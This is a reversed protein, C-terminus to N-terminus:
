FVCELIHHKVLWGAVRAARQPSVRASWLTVLTGIDVNAPVLSLLCGLEIGDVFAVPRGLAPHLLATRECVENDIICPEKSLQAAGSLRVRTTASINQDPLSARLPLRANQIGTLPRSRERWFPSVGFRVVKRYSDVSWAHHREITERQRARYFAMSLEKREPRTIMTHVTAAAVYGTQMAKEVGTSSLPDLTFSSEGVRVFNPGISDVTFGTTANLAFVPQAVPLKSVDEFLTAEALQSRWFEELGEPRRQRFTCSDIFVMASFLKGPVSAGWCWGDPIAEIRTAQPPRSDQLYGCLALTPPLTSVRAGPLFSQRGAADILYSARINRIQRDSRIDLQWGSECSTARCAQTPQIVEVGAVDASKLLLSDFEGRNVTLAASNDAEPLREAETKDWRVLTEPAHVLDLKSWLERLGLMEFLIPTGKTLSEGVHPRPFRAREILIVRHGLQALRLATTSGAPGAGVVCADVQDDKLLGFGGPVVGCESTTPLIIRSRKCLKVCNANLACQETNSVSHDFHTTVRASPHLNHKKARERSSM